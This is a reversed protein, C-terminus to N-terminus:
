SSHLQFSLLFVAALHLSGCTQTGNQIEEVVATGKNFKKFRDDENALGELFMSEFHPGFGMFAETILAQWKQTTNDIEELANSM